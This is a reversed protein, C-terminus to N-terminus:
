IHRVFFKTSVDTPISAFPAGTVPNITNGTLVGDKLALPTDDINAHFTMDNKLLIFHGEKSYLSVEGEKLNKKRSESHDVTVAIAQDRNGNMNLLVVESGNPPHSSLGYNQVREVKDRVEGKMITVQVLQINTSDDVLSILARQALMRIKNRIPEVFRNLQAVFDM